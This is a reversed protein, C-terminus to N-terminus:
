EIKLAKVPNETAAKWTQYGTTLLIILFVIFGALLFVWLNLSTRVIFDDMWKQLGYYAVPCAIVFAIVVVLLLEKNLLVFIDNLSAGHVKHLAIERVRRQVAYYTMAFLGSITIMLTILLAFTFVKGANMESQYFKKYTDELFNYNFPYNPDREKWHQGIISLAKQPNGSIKFYVASVGDWNDNMKTFIQPDINHHFSRTYANKLVGKITKINGNFSINQGVPQDLGLLEAGRENILVDNELSSENLFPNEGNIFKMGLVEFFDSSVTCIDMLVSESDESPAKEVNLTRNRSSLPDSKRAIGVITPEKLLESKLTNFDRNFESRGTVYVIHESDFGLDHSIMYDIQKQMFLVVLLLAISASFQFIMLGKQFFSMPKGKFKRSITEIVDFRTMYLAPFSGAILVTFVFIVSLLCYLIPSTFDISFSSQTFNNFIPLILKSLWLGLFLSVVVYCATELYFEFILRSKGAGFCKKVGISRARIFSTAVFLNAFNICSIILIILSTLTFIVVLSFNGKRSIFENSLDSDFYMDNLSELSITGACNEEDEDCEFAQNLIQQVHGTIKDAKVGEHLLLFANCSTDGFWDEYTYWSFLPFVFDAQLSSNTPMDKMIGSVVFDTGSLQVIQGIPSEQSFYKTAASESIVVKDSSSLVHEPVGENLPFTFFSFFNSEVILVETNPHWVDNVHVSQNRIYVRCADEIFPVKEKAQKAYPQRTTARKYEQDNYNIHTIIRFIRDKHDHFQDYSLERLSWLNVLVAVMVGLSLTCINLLSVFKQKRFNTIFNKM